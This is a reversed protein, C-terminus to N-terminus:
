AAKEKQNRVDIKGTVAASILATRHERLYDISAEVEKSISYLKSLVQDLYAVAQGQEEIPPVPIKWSKIHSQAIKAMTMSSGRADIKTQARAPQGLFWYMMYRPNTSKDYILKYILDCIIIKRDDLNGVICVDGVLEPTNARTILFDGENVRLGKSPDHEDLMAKCESPYFSGSKVASLKTVGWQNDNPPNSDAQPSWGQEITNILRRHLLVDWHEPVEGIWEVGSDKMKANPDLGKTVVHSILAQRKEKLLNIFAQKEAILNDIRATERDLFSAIAIQEEHPVLPVVINKMEAYRTSWLDAVIGKGFRYFEEQFNYSRFLHHAFEPLYFRPELVTSILSVSGEYESVGASGKRDSRSNIVFDNKCVQKRNDGADTKAVHEMQPVIGNKTVSLAPYETDSVKENRESFCAGLKGLSWHAPVRGLWDLGTEQYKPYGRM